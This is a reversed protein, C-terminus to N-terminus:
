KVMILQQSGGKKTHIRLLYAGPPLHQLDLENGDRRVPLRRGQLDFLEASHFGAAPLDVFLRNAAPQPYVRWTTEEREEQVPVPSGPLTQPKRKETAPAPALPDATGPSTPELGLNLLSIRGTQTRLAQEVDRVGVEKIVLAELPYSTVRLSTKGLTPTTQFCLRFLISSDPLTRSVADQVLFLIRGKEAESLNFSGDDPRFPLEPHEDIIGRFQLMDPSWQFGAQLGLVQDFNKAYVPVCLDGGADVRMDAAGLLVRSLNRNNGYGDFSPQKFYMRMWEGTSDRAIQSGEDLPFNFSSFFAYRDFADFVLWFLPANAQPRVPAASQWSFQLKEQGESFQSTQVGPLGYGPRISHLPVASLEWGMSLQLRSLPAVSEAFVPIVLNGDADASGAGIRIRVSDPYIDFCSSRLDPFQRTCGSGDEVWLNYPGPHQVEFRSQALSGEYVTDVRRDDWHFLVPFASTQLSAILEAHPRLDYYCDADVQVPLPGSMVRVTDPFSCGLDTRTVTPYYYGSSLDTARAGTQGDAWKVRYLEPANQFRLLVAGNQGCPAPTVETEVPEHFPKIQDLAINKVTQCGPWTLTVQYDGSFLGTLSTDGTEGTSWQIRLGSTDTEVIGLEIAGLDGECNLDTTRVEVAPAEIIRDFSYSVMEQYGCLRDTITLQYFGNLLGTISATQDGTSWNFQYRSTDAEVIISGPNACNLPPEPRIDIPLPMDEARRVVQFFSRTNGAADRVTGEYFGPAPNNLVAETHEFGDPGSWNYLYPPLGGSVSVSLATTERCGSITRCLADVVLGSPNADTSIRGHIGNLYIRQRNKYYYMAPLLGGEDMLLRVPIEEPAEPQVEFCLTYIPTTDSLSFLGFSAHESFFYSLPSGQQQINYDFGYTGDTEPAQVEVLRLAEAPWVLQSTFFEINELSSELTVDLCVTDGAAAGEASSVRLVGCHNQPQAVSTFISLFTLLFALAPAYTNGTM